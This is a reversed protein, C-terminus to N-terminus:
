KDEEEAAVETCVDRYNAQAEAFIGLAEYYTDCCWNVIEFCAFATADAQSGEFGNIMECLEKIKAEIMEHTIESTSELVPGKEGKKILTLKKDM